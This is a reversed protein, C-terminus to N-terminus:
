NLEKSTPILGMTLLDSAESLKKLAATVERPKADMFKMDGKLARLARDRLSEIDNLISTKQTSSRLHGPSLKITVM